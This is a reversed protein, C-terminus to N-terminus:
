PVFSGTLFRQYVHFQLFLFLASSITCFLVISLQGSRSLTQVRLYHTSILSVAAFSPLTYRCFSGPIGADMIIASAICGIALIYMPCRALIETRKGSLRRKFELTLLLILYANLYWLVFRNLSEGDIPQRILDCFSFHGTFYSQIKFVALVNGPHGWSFLQRFFYINWQGLRLHCYVFFAEIGVISFLSINVYRIFSRIPSTTKKHQSFHFLFALLSNIPVIMGVVRTAAAISSLTAAAISDRSKLPQSFVFFISGFYTFLLLSESYGCVMIFFLPTSVLFILFSFILYKPVKWRINLALFFFWFGFSSLISTTLLAKEASVGVFLNWARSVYVYAPFFAATSSFTPSAILGKQYQEIYLGCDWKCLENWFTLPRHGGAIIWMFTLQIAVIISSTAAIGGIKVIRSPISPITMRM